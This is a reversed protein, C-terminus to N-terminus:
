LVESTAIAELLERATVVVRSESEHGIVTGTFSSLLRPNDISWIGVAVSTVLTGGSNYISLTISLVTDNTGSDLLKVYDVSTYGSMVAKATYGGPLSTAVACGRTAVFSLGVLNSLDYGAKIGTLGTINFTVSKTEFWYREALQWSPRLMM